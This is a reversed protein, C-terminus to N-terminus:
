KGTVKKVVAELEEPKNTGILLKRGDHLELELGLRGSVNYAPGDKGFRLGWGGFELMPNYKRVHAAAIEDWRITRRSLPFFVIRVEEQTIETNLHVIGLFGITAYVFLSGLVLGLDSMPHDGWPKGLVLQQFMGWSFLLATAVMPIWLYWQRFFQKEQFLIVSM